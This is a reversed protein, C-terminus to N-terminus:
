GALAAAGLLFPVPASIWLIAAFGGLFDPGLALFAPGIAMGGIFVTNALGRITGHHLRGFYCAYV